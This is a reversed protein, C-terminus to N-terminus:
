GEAETPPRALLKDADSGLRKRDAEAVYLEAMKNARWGFIAKMQDVTARNGAVRVAAAKRLGHSRGPVKAKICWDRFKNGFGAVTFPRGYENVLFTLDGTIGAAASADLVRQLDAPM